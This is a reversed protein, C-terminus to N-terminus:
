FAEIYEAAVEEPPNTYRQIYRRSRHGLRRELEFADAGTVRALMFAFTHRLDHPRLPSLHRSEDMIEADHWRGIQELITNISRPALRGNGHRSAVQSASLFLPPNELGLADQPHEKELYDALAHRADQSLFIDRQSKGKGRVKHIRARRAQRLEDPGHPSVQSLDLQVLEERRLGTSLLVFVIARDRWPRATARLPAEGKKKSWQRGKARYFPLLRDCLNKLSQVQAESLSRPELPALGLETIGKTPDGMSLGHPQHVALWTGFASLSAMHNNITAPALGQAALSQQWAQSDRKVWSSLREQGYRAEFFQQFRRLHLRVKETVATSRVGQVAVELYYAMWESLSDSSPQSM